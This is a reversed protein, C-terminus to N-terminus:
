RGNYVKEYVCLTERACREWSFMKARELGKKIMNNRFKNNSLVEHMAKALGDIDYPDVMIGADGVVEPLSSTNSTIVPCGCAMAELPPLGFGEYFSPFVFLDAANYMRPLDNPSIFGTFIVEKELKLEKLMRLIKDYYHGKTAPVIVLKHAVGRKKLKYFSAIIGDVNKRPELNGVYLIFPDNIGYNNTIDEVSNLPRFIEDIGHHIVSMRDPNIGFYETIDEKTKNSIAIVHIPNKLINKLMRNEINKYFKESVSLEKFFEKGKLSWAILDHVTIVKLSPIYPLPKLQSMEHVLDFNENRIAKPLYIFKSVTKKLKDPVIMPAEIMLEESKNFVDHYPEQLGQKKVHILVYENERDIELLKRTINYVYNGSGHVGYDLRDVILGIKM